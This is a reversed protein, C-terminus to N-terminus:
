YKASVVGKVPEDWRYNLGVSVIDINSKTSGVFPVGAIFIPNNASNINISANRVFIHAYSLDISLKQSFQYSAGATLWVRDNDPIRVGRVTDTVPSWEYAAGARITWNQNWKYEAGASAFWGDSWRFAFNTFNTGAPITGGTSYVPFTNFISWHTWEVNALVTWQDNIRQKLGFTIQDPAKITSTMGSNGVPSIFTGGLKESVQSRYGIGIETGPAPKFTMGATFGVGWADANIINTTNPVLASAASSYHLEAYMIRLGFALSFMDNFKYAVNPNIDITTLKSTQGYLAGAWNTPNTTSSGFPATVALGFWINDNYQYSAYSGPVLASQGMNGTSASGFTALLLPSTGAVNPTTKTNPIIGSLSWSSQWGAFDTMTAPNWFMSGLGAGGAAAGAFAVGMGLASQERIAVGGALTAGVSAVLAAGAVGGLLLGKFHSRM